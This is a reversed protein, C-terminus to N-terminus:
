EFLEISFLDHILGFSFDTIDDVLRTVTLFSNVCNLLSIVIFLELIAYDEHITTHGDHITIVRGFLDPLELPGVFHLLWENYRTRAVGFLFVYLFCPTVLHVLDDWFRSLGIEYLANEGLDNLVFDLLSPNM